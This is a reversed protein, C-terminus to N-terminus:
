DIEPIYSSTLSTASTSVKASVARRRAPKLGFRDELRHYGGLGPSWFEHILKSGHVLDAYNKESVPIIPVTRSNANELNLFWEVYRATDNACPAHRFDWQDDLFVHRYLDQRQNEAVFLSFVLLYYQLCNGNRGYDRAFATLRVEDVEQAMQELTPVTSEFNKYAKQMNLRTDSEGSFWGGSVGFTSSLWELQPLQIANALDKQSSLTGLSWHWDAPVMKLMDAKSLKCHKMLSQIRRATAIEPKSGSVRGINIALEKVIECNHFSFVSFNFQSNFMKVDKYIVSSIRRSEVTLKSKVDSNNTTSIPEDIM